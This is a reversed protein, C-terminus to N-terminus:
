SVIPMATWEGMDVLLKILAREQASKPPTGHKLEGGTAQLVRLLVSLVAQLSQDVSFSLKFNGQVYAPACRAVFVHDLLMEPKTTDTAHQVLVCRDEDSIENLSSAALIAACWAHLHPPLAFQVKTRQKELFYEKGAADM